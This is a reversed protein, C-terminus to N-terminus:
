ASPRDRQRARRRDAPDIEHEAIFADLVSRRYFIRRGLKIYKPGKWRARWSALTGPRQRLVVEAEDNPVLDDRTTAMTEM